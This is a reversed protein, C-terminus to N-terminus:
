PHKYDPNHALDFKVERLCYYLDSGSMCHDRICQQVPVILPAMLGLKMMLGSVASKVVASLILDAVLQGQIQPDDKLQCIKDLETGLQMVQTIPQGNTLEKYLALYRSDCRWHIRRGLHVIM